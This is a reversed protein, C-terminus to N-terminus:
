LSFTRGPSGAGKWATSSPRSRIPRRIPYHEGEFVEVLIALLELRDSELTVPKTEWLQEIKRLTTGYDAKSKIPKIEM